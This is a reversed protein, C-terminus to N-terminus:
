DHRMKGTPNEVHIQVGYLVELVKIVNELPEDPDFTVQM